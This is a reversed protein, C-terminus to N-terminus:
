LVKYFSSKAKFRWLEDCKKGRAESHTENDNDFRHKKGSRQNLKSLRFLKVKAQSELARKNSSRYWSLRFKSIFSQRVLRQSPSVSSCLLMASKWTIFTEIIWQSTGFASLSRTFFMLQYFVNFIYWCSGYWHCSYWWFIQLQTWASTHINTQHHPVITTNFIRVSEQSLVYVFMRWFIVCCVIM